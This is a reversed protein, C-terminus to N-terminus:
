LVFPDRCHEVANQPLCLKAKFVLSLNQMTKIIKIYNQGFIYQM